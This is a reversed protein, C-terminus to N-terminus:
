FRQVYSFSKLIKNKTKKLARHSLPVPEHFTNNIYSFLSVFLWVYGHYRQNTFLSNKIKSWCLKTVTLFINCRTESAPGRYISCPIKLIVPVCMETQKKPQKNPRKLEKFLQCWCRVVLSSARINFGSPQNSHSPYDGGTIDTCWHRVSM